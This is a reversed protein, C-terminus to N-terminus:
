GAAAAAIGSGSVVAAAENSIEWQVPKDGELPTYGTIGPIYAETGARVIWPREPLSSAPLRPIHYGTGPM